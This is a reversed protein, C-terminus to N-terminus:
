RTMEWASLSPSTHPLFAHSLLLPPPSTVLHPTCSPFGLIHMDDHPHSILKQSLKEQHTCVLCAELQARSGIVLAWLKHTHRHIVAHTHQNATNCGGVPANFMCVSSKQRQDDSHSQERWTTILKTNFTLSTVSWAPFGVFSWHM